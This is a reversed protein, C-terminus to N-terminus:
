TTENEDTNEEDTTATETLKGFPQLESIDLLLFSSNDIPRGAGYMKIKLTTLDDLFKFESSEEIKGGDTGAGIGFKYNKGIGFLATGQEVEPSQVFKTPYPVIDRVYFGDSNQTTTAPLIKKFYDVPNIIMVVSTISRARGTGTIALRSLLDGYIEPTINTVSIATKASYGKSTTFEADLDRSAGIPEGNIGKGNIIGDEVGYYLSEALCTRVYKEVWVPGLALMDNSIYMFATCKGLTLEVVDVEGELEKTVAATLSGWVAKQPGKANIILRMLADTEICDIEDLIPHAERMDEFIANIETKPMVETVGTFAKESDPKKLKEILNNFYSKETSTLVRLGRASLIKEDATELNLRKAESVIKSEVSAFMESFAKAASETDNEALAKSLQETFQERTTEDVFKFKTTM